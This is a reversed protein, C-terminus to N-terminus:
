MSSFSPEFELLDTLMAVVRRGPVRWSAHPLVSSLRVCALSTARRACEGGIISTAMAPLLLMNVFNDANREADTKVWGRNEHVSRIIAFARRSSETNNEHTLAYTIIDTLIPILSAVCLPASSSLSSSCLLTRHPMAHTRPSLIAGLIRSRDERIIHLPADCRSGMSRGM